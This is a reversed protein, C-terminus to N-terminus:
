ARHHDHPEELYPLPQARRSRVAADKAELLKVLAWGRMQNDPLNAVVWHALESFEKSVKGLESPLHAYAFYQMIEDPM